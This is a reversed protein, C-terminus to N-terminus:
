IEEAESPYYERASKLGGEIEDENYIDADEIDNEWIKGSAGNGYYLGNHSVIVFKKLNIKINLTEM